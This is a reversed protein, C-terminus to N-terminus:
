LKGPPTTLYAYIAATDSPTFNKLAVDIVHTMIATERGKPPQGTAFFHQFQALSYHKIEARLDPSKMEPDGSLDAAHCAACQSQTLYNGLALPETPTPTPGRKSVDVTEAENKFFGLALMIRGDLNWQTPEAADPKPALSRLYAVIAATDSGSLRIFEASPMDFLATGDPKVGYRIAAAIQDDSWKQLHTLNSATLRSGLAGSFMVHGTLQSGHCTVCGNLRALRAGDQAQSQSVTVGMAPPQPHHAALMASSVAEIRWIALAVLLVIAAGAILWTRNKRTM